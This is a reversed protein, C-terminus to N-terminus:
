PAILDHDVGYHRASRALGKDATILTLGHLFATALHLADPARLTTTCDGIWERALKYEMTGIAVIHYSNQDVHTTLKGILRKATKVDLDGLRVKMAVASSFELETLSSLTPRDASRLVVEAKNSLAEPFYYAVLVSTDVYVM